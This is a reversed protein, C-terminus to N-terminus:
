VFLSVADKLSKSALSSPQKNGKDSLKSKSDSTHIGFDDESFLLMLAYVLELLIKSKLKWSFEMDGVYSLLFITTKSKPIESFLTHCNSIQPFNINPLFSITKTPLPTLM